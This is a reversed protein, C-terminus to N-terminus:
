IFLTVKSDIADGLYTAAGGYELGDLLEESQIGMVGMAMQCAVMRVGLEQALSILDPLTEVNHKRMLGRFLAPGMGLMNMRSTGLSKASDPLLLALLREPISKEAYVTRKKLALLGWFTFYMSVECGMAVAGTAIIFASTVRDMDGSFVLLSVQELQAKAEVESIRAKAELVQQELTAVRSALLAEAEAEIRRDWAAKVGAEVRADIM